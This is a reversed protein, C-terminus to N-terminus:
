QLSTPSKTKTRKGDSKRIHEHEGSALKRTIARLVLDKIEDRTLPRTEGEDYEEHEMSTPPVIAVQVHKPSTRGSAQSTPPTPQGKDKKEPKPSEKKMQIYQQLKILEMTRQEIIGMYQLINKNTVGEESGLTDSISGHDCNADKFLKSVNVRVEDLVKCIEKDKKEAEDIEKEFQLAKIEMERIMERRNEEGKLNEDEFVKIESQLSKIEKQINEVTDNLENVFNYLAFNQDEKKIFDSVIKDIDYEGTANAVRKFAGELKIISQKELDADKEGADKGKAKKAQEEERLDARDHVKIGMFEKLKDDHIIIRQLEKMEVTQQAMDKHSREKLALMKNQAEDREEYSQAAQTISDNLSLKAQELKDTLKKHIADFTAKDVRLHDLEERLKANKALQQNFKILAQDLRNETVSLRQAIKMELTTQTGSSILNREEDIMEQTRAIDESLEEIRSEEQKCLRKYEDLKETLEILTHINGDDEDRNRDCTTLRLITNMDRSEENLANIEEEQKRIANGVEESYSRRDKEMMRLQRKLRHLEAELQSEELSDDGCVSRRGTQAPGAPLGPAGGGAFKNHKKRM